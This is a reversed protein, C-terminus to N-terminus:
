FLNKKASKYESWKVAKDPRLLYDIDGYRKNHDNKGQLFEDKGINMAATILKERTMNPIKLIDQLAKKRKPSLLAPGKGGTLKHLGTLFEALEEDDKAVVKRTPFLTREVETYDDDSLNLETGSLLVVLKDEPYLLTIFDTNLKVLTSESRISIWM